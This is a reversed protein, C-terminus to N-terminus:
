ECSERPRTLSLPCWAAGSFSIRVPFLGVQSTSKKGAVHPSSLPFSSWGPVALALFYNTRVGFFEERWGLCLCQPIMGLSVGGGSLHLWWPSQSDSGGWVAWILWFLVVSDRFISLRFSIVSQYFFSNFYSRSDGFIIALIDLKCHFIMWGM